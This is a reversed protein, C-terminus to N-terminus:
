FGASLMLTNLMTGTGGPLMPGQGAAYASGSFRNLVWHLGVNQSAMWNVGFTIANDTSNAAARGNDAKRYGGVVTLFPRQMVGVEATMTLASRSRTRSNFITGADSKGQTVYVGLPLGSIEGQAQADFALAGTKVLDVGTGAANAIGASGSWSQIGVGLDWSAVTPMFAARLYTATPSGNAVGQAGAFHNPSWKTVNVFWKPDALVFAVGEAATATGIYQQASVANRNENVRVHRVAGTNLLEFGYSPGLHETSFPIVDARIGGSGLAFTFPMKFGGVFPASAESLQGEIVFGANESVRGGMLVVFEDPFQLEGINTTREGPVETGNTKQYRVKLFISSNLVAPLSLRGGKVTEQSGMATYGAAAFGRGFANLAPYKQFHCSSCALGTQRSFGPFAAGSRGATSVELAALPVTAIIVLGASVLATISRRRLVDSIHYMQM